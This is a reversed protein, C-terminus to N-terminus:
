SYPASLLCVPCDDVWKKGLGSESSEVVLEHHAIDLEWLEEVSFNSRSWRVTLALTNLSRTNVVLFVSTVM